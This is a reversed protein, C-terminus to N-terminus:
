PIRKPSPSDLYLRQSEDMPPHPSVPKGTTIDNGYISPMYSLTWLRAWSPTRSELHLRNQKRRWNCLRPFFTWNSTLSKQNFSESFVQRLLCDGFTPQSSILQSPMRALDVDGGGRKKKKQEPFLTPLPHFLVANAQSFCGPTQKLLFTHPWSSPLLFLSFLAILVFIQPPANDTYSFLLSHKKGLHFDCCFLYYNSGLRTLASSSCLNWEM